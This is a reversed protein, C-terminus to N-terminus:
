SVLHSPTRPPLSTPRRSPPQRARPRPQPHNRGPVAPLSVLLELSAFTPLLATTVVATNMAHKASAAQPLEFFDEDEEDDAPVVLWALAGGDPELGIWSLGALWPLVTVIPDFFKVSSNM